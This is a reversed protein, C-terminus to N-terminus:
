TAATLPSLFLFAPSLNYPRLVSGLTYPRGMMVLQWQLLTLLHIFYAIYEPSRAIAAEHWEISIWRWKTAVFSQNSKNCKLGYPQSNWLYWLNWAIGLKITSSFNIEPKLKNSQKSPISSCENWNKMWDEAVRYSSM